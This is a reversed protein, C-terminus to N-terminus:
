SRHAPCKIRSLFDAVVPEVFWCLVDEDYQLASVFNSILWQCTLGYPASHALIPFFTSGARNCKNANPDACRCAHRDDSLYQTFPVGRDAPDRKLIGRCLQETSLPCRDRRRM